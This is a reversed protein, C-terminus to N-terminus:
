ARVWARHQSAHGYTVSRRWPHRQVYPMAAGCLSRLTVASRIHCQATCCLRLATVMCIPCQASCCLPITMASRIPHDGPHARASSTDPPPRAGTSSPPLPPPAGLIPLRSSPDCPARAPGLYALGQRTPVGRSHEGRSPQYAVLKVPLFGHIPLRSSPYSGM